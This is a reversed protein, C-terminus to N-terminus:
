NRTKLEVSGIPFFFFQYEFRAVLVVTAFFPVPLSLDDFFIGSIDNCFIYICTYFGVRFSAGLELPPEQWVEAWLSPACLELPSALWIEAWPAAWAREM